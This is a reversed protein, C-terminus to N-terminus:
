EYEIEEIQYYEESTENVVFFPESPNDDRYYVQPPEFSEIDKPDECEKYNKYNDQMYENITALAAMRTPLVRYFVGIEGRDIRDNSCISTVIYGKKM